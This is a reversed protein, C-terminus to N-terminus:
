IVSKQLELELDELFTFLAESTSDIPIDDPLVGVHLFPRVTGIPPGIDYHYETFLYRERFKERVGIFGPGQFVALWLNRSAVEYIGGQECKGMPIQDERPNMIEPNEELFEELSQM